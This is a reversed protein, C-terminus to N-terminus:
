KSLALPLGCCTCGTIIEPAPNIRNKMHLPLFVLVVYLINTYAIASTDFYFAGEAISWRPSGETLHGYLTHNELLFAVRMVGYVVYLMFINWVVALPSNKLFGTIRTMMGNM